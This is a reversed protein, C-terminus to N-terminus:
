FAPSVVQEGSRLPIQEPAGGALSQIFFSFQGKVRSAGTLRGVVYAVETGDRSLDLSIVPQETLLLATPDSRGPALRMVRSGRSRGGAEAVFLLDGSPLFHPNSERAGSRTLRRAEGGALDMVYIEQNGDRASVFTISRGDSSLDPSHNGGPSATLARAESGDVAISHIQALGGRPTAAYVVRAGDPTWVPDGENGPDSTLRRLNRGDADMVFLDYSGTRNSSFAIRTRDPSLAAQVNSASDVLVPILTDGAAARLQYIGFAGSRNSSVVLEGTVLVEAAATRGWPAKATVVARGPSLADITGAGSVRAIEPRDSTWELGGAPGVVKGAEDVLRAAVTARGGVRLGLRSSDLGLLGPIVDVRWVVPDFGSLRVTLTTRGVAKGTLARTAVDFGIVSSDGVTWDLRAEPIPMSDASEAVASVARTGQVPLQIPGAGAPPSVVLAQPVEHVTVAASLEQGFGAATVTAEGPGRGIVVGTPGVRVVSTDNSHWQIGSRVNRNGQSPVLARLTDAGEPGISVRQRSLTFDAPEVSVPATATLGAASTAQVIGRGLGVGIVVGLSDVAVIGPQLTKWTIRGTAVPSGDQLLGQANLTAREGPLLVLATPNLTLVSGSPVVITDRGTILVALSARRRQVRAEVKALGPGIGVVTGDRLVRAILTDSSWFSFKASPVLNGQRDYAAAFINQRQNVGLTMTEPTVQVEAISQAALAPVSASLLVAAM